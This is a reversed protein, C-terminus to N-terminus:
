AIHSKDRVDYRVHTALLDTYSHLHLDIRCVTIESRFPFFSTESTCQRERKGKAAYWRWRGAHIKLRDRRRKEGAGTALRWGTHASSGNRMETDIVISSISHRTGFGRISRTTHTSQRYESELPTQALFGAGRQQGSSDRIM